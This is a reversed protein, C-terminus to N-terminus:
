KKDLISNIEKLDFKEKSLKKRLERIEKVSDKKSNSIGIMDELVLRRVADRVVDSRSSYVGTKIWADLRKVLGNGLRVQIVDMVM